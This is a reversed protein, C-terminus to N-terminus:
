ISLLEAGSFLARTTNASRTMGVRDRGWPWAWGCEVGLVGLVGLSARGRCTFPWGTGHTRGRRERRDKRGRRQARNGNAARREDYAHDPGGGRAISYSCVRVRLRSRPRRRGGFERIGPQLVVLMRPGSPGQGERGGTRGTRLAPMGRGQNRCPGGAPLTRQRIATVHVIRRGSRAPLVLKLFRVALSRGPASRTDSRPQGTRARKRVRSRAPGRGGQPPPGKM